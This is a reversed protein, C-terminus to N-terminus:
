SSPPSEGFAGNWRWAYGRTRRQLRNPIAAFIARIACISATGNAVKSQRQLQRAAWPLRYRIRCMAYLDYRVFAERDPVVDLYYGGIVREAYASLHGSGDECRRRNATGAEMEMLDKLVQHRRRAFEPRSCATRAKIPM